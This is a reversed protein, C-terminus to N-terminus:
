NFCFKGMQTGDESIRKAASLSFCCLWDAQDFLILIHKDMPYFKNLCVLEFVCSVMTSYVKKRKENLQLWNRLCMMLDFLWMFVFTLGPNINFSVIPFIDIRIRIASALTLCGLSEIRHFQSGAPSNHGSSYCWVNLPFYIPECMPTHFM